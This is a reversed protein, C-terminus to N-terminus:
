REDDVCHWVGAIGAGAVMFVAILTEPHGAVSALVGGVFVGGLIGCTLKTAM